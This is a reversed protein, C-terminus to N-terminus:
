TNLEDFKRPVGVDLSSHPARNLSFVTKFERYECCNLLSLLSFLIKNMDNKYCYFNAFGSYGFPVTEFQVFAAKRAVKIINIKEKNFRTYEVTEERKFDTFFVAFLAMGGAGVLALPGLVVVAMVCVVVGLWALGRVITYAAEPIADHYTTILGETTLRYHYNKDALWLYRTFAAVIAGMIIPAWGADDDSYVLWIGISMMIGVPISIILWVFPTEVRIGWEHLTPAERVMKQNANIIRQQEEQPLQHFPTEQENGEIVESKKEM